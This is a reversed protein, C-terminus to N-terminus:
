LGYALRIRRRIAGAVKRLQPYFSGSQHETRLSTKM